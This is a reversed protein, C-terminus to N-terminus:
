PRSELWATAEKKDDFGKMDATDPNQLGLATDASIRSLRSPGYIHACWKLGAKRARPLFNLILWPAVGIWIGLTHTNDNVAKHLKYQILLELSRECGQKISANSQYGKWDLYLWSKEDDLYIDLFSEQFNLILAMPMGTKPPPCAVAHLRLAHV